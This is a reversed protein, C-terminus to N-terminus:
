DDIATNTNKSMRQMLIPTVLGIIILVFLIICIPRGAYYALVNGKSMVLSQRFGREAMPGLIMALVVAATPFNAKRMYYGMLGFIAMTYVDVISNNIAFSGVVSLVVIIPGLIGSPVTSVRVVYKASLYGVIGMLINAIFFGVIVAYTIKAHKTFLEHGPQLGQILLGGLFIATASSGPIGLTLLPILAGGTVANNAAESAAVGEIHGKGFKEPTKSFRKAENYSLWSAIDGGAGPLIGILVGIISSRVITRWISKLESWTLWFSGKLDGIVKNTKENMKEVQIMVQSLSFLGIMAPVFSIGSELATIGFTYRPYGSLVDVGVTGLLLGFVGAALGKIISEQSLGAIITLGFVAILFYEPSSFRLSVKALPPALILLCVASFLGGLVSCITSTGLAKLGQGQLTMQYGDIATAASAPTGPTHILIASISGGYIASTYIAALMTLGAVPSMGFTVPVLLAIGMSATLGPLAGIIIGGVVGVMLAM